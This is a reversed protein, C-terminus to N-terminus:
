RSRTNTELKHSRIQRNIQTKRILLHLDKGHRAGGLVDDLLEHAELHAHLAGHVAVLELDLALALAAGVLAVVGHLQLHGLAAGQGEGPVDQGGLELVAGLHVHLVGGVDGVVLLQGEGLAELPLAHHVELVAAHHGHGLVGGQLVAAEDVLHLEDAHVEGGVAGYHLLLGHAPLGGGLAQVGAVAHQLALDVLGQLQLVAAVVQHLELGDVHGLLGHLQGAVVVHVGLQVDGGM